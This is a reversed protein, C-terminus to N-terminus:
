DYHEQKEIIFTIYDKIRILEKPYLQMLLQIISEYDSNFTSLEPNLDNTLFYKPDINLANCIEIFVSLSTSRIGVEIRNISQPTLGVQEALEETSINKSNRVERLRKGFAINDM